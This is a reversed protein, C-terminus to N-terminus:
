RTQSSAGLKQRGGEARPGPLRLRGDPLIKFKANATFRAAQRRDKRCNLPPPGVEEPGQPERHGLGLLEQVRRQSRGVVAAVAGVASVEGLWAREPRKEAVALQASLEADTVYPLGAEHAAKRARLADNFVVRACGFLRALARVQGPTPYLRYDYRLRVNLAYRTEHRFASM